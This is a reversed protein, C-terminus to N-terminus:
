LLPVATVSVAGAVKPPLLKEFHCLFPTSRVVLAEVLTVM